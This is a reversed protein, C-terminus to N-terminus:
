DLIEECITCIHKVKNQNCDYYTAEIDNSYYGNQDSYCNVSYGNISFGYEWSTLEIKDFDQEYFGTDDLSSWDAYNWECCDQEHYTEIKSGDDFYLTKDDINPKIARM